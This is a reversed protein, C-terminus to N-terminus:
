RGYPSEEEIPRSKPRPGLSPGVWNPPPAAPGVPAISPSAAPAPAPVLALDMSIDRDFRAEMTRAGFGPASAVLQHVRGDREVDADYPNSAAPTGDISVRASPPSVLIHVHVLTAAAASASPPTSPAAQAADHADSRTVAYVGLSVVAIAGAVLFPARRTWTSRIAAGTGSTTEVGSSAKTEAAPWEGTSTPRLSLELVARNDRASPTAERVKRTETEIIDRIRKREEAFVSGMISKLRPGDVDTTTHLHDLIATRMEEATAYRDAPDVSLAKMCIAELAPPVDPNVVSAKPIRGSALEILVAADPMNRWMPEGTCVEWLVMGMAFVDTRRDIPKCLAQEPASFRVKGKFVGSETVTTADAMKAIGFDVLKTTGEYTVIINQPSVDRHVVDLPRGDYETLEHAYHLGALADAVVRLLVPLPFRPRGHGRLIRQLPQGDLFEMTLYLSDGDEVVEYTQVVNPHNFRTALRAEDLFMTRASAEQALDGRLDKIVVLKSVGAPGLNVALFVEGM